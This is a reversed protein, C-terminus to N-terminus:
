TRAKQRQKDIALAADRHGCPWQAGIPYDVSLERLCCHSEHPVPTDRHWCQCPGDDSM